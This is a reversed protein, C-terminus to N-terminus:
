FIPMSIKFNLRKRTYLKVKVCGIKSVTKTLRPAEFDTFDSIVFDMFDLIVFDTFDLIM